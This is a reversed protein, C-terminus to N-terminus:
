SRYTAMLKHVSPDATALRSLAPQFKMPNAVCPLWCMFAGLAALLTSTWTSTSLTVSLREETGDKTSVSHAASPRVAGRCGARQVQDHVAVASLGDRAVCMGVHKPRAGRFLRVARHAHHGVTGADASQCGVVSAYDARRLWLQDGAVHEIHAAFDGANRTELLSKGPLMAAGEVTCTPLRVFAILSSRKM